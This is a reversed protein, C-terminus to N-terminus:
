DPAPEGGAREFLEGILAQAERQIDRLHDPGLFSEAYIKYVDETGSPRAAFWGNRTRVRVGGLGAGGGPTTTEVAIVSEGALQAIQFHEPGAKALVAKQRRSAPADLREYFPTGLAQTLGGYLVGPDRGSSATIEAALLGLLLGDKETTWVTGDRRLFAAGASEEGAFGLAGRTLGDVFWRFGVPTEILQRGLQSALRDLMASTVMTKGVACAGPWATRAGFLYSIAASLYHNPNMLGQSPTVIGHRDADTDNGFAIEFQSKLGVLRAMAYPSSCDMRIQGDWDATMFGFTPDVVESVVTANLGYRDIIPAWYGVAAGGLPDIGISVGSAAIAAMDLVSPLDAVYPSTFDFRRVEASVRARAFPIRRIGVLGAALFDNALREIAGTTVADAPGGHPPNYKFGGDAPPNHSPTIVVGDALGQSRDRNYSLIAHSIVPTPTYGGAADIMTTVGNAAFVELATVFAPQSLAHTDIGMFLPGDVGRAKRDICIAQTIALIHAENFANNFASGRHGSTGFTVRQTAVTPDPRGEHYARLLRGVDLLSAPEVLKGARPDVDSSM